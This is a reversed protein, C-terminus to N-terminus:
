QFVYGVSVNVILPTNAIGINAAQHTEDKGTTANRYSVADHELTSAVKPWFRLSTSLNLGRIADSRAAFPLYTWYAGAGLTYTSYRAIETKSRGDLSAYSAEFRHIKGEFRLDFFSSLASVWHTVGLGFGTSYPLHLSVQQAKMDGVVAAGKLDLSWGHSYSAVFHGYRVDVEANAGGLVLPQILGANVTVSLAEPRFTRAALPASFADTTSPALSPAAPATAPALAPAPSAPPLEAQQAMAANALTLATITTLASLATLAPRNM